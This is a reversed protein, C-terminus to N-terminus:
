RRMGARSVGTRRLMSVPASLSPGAVTLIREAYRASTGDPGPTGGVMYIEATAALVYTDSGAGSVLGWSNNWGPAGTMDPQTVDWTSPTGGLFGATATIWLDRGNQNMGWNILSNYETQSPLQVRYRAIPSTATQTVTPTSLAPGLAATRNAPTRFFQFVARETTATQAFVELEHVDGSVSQTGPVLSLTGSSGALQASWLDASTKGAHFHVAASNTEGAVTGTLTLTATAPALAEAAGFDLLPISAGNTFNQARRIIIANPTLQNGSLTGRSAVLDLAGDQVNNLTSSTGPNTISTASGGLNVRASQGTSLGAVSVNLNKTGFGQPCTQPLQQLETATAMLLDNSFFSGTGGGSNFVLRTMVKPAANFSVVGNVPTVQTWSGGENQYGFWLITTPTGGDSCLPYSVATLAVAAQITVGITTTQNALGPSTGTITLTATGITATGSATLTLTSSAGTASTPNLTATLGSTAGTVALAVAGTFGGTRNVNVTATASGGQSVTRSTPTMSLTYTGAVTVTLTVPLTKESIGTGSAKVTLAADGPTATSAVTLTLTTTTAGEGLTAPDFAATVGSPLGDVTLTVTGPFNTRTITAAVSGSSGQTVSLSSSALALTISADDDGSGPDLPCGAVAAGMLLILATRVSTQQLKM